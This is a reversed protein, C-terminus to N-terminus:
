DPDRSRRLQKTAQGVGRLGLHDRLEWGGGDIGEWSVVAASWPVRTPIGVFGDIRSLINDNGAESRETPLGQRAQRQM